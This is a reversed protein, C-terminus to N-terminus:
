FRYGFGTFLVVVDASRTLGFYGNIDVALNSTVQYSLGLDATGVWPVGRLSNVASYFEAYGSLKGLITRTVGVPNSWVINRAARGDVKPIDIRTQGFLTFGAPLTYNFPVGLGFDFLKNGLNATNTPVKVSAIVGLIFPGGDNGVVNVKLRLTTDGFGRITKAPTVPTPSFRKEVYGQPFIQFEMWNTLGVKFNTQGFLLTQVTQGARDTTYRDMTYNIVDTEMQFAGADITFPSDTKSSRDTNYPRWLQRPAPDFITYPSKNVAPTPTPTTEGEDASLLRVTGLMGGVLQSVARVYKPRSFFAAIPGRPPKSSLSM